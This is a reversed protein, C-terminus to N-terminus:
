EIDEPCFALVDNIFTSVIFDIVDKVSIMGIPHNEADVIPVHRFGGQSMLTLAFAISTEPKECVPNPTMFDRLPRDKNQEFDQVVKLICDRESFIGSVAGRDDTVIVCGVRRERLVRLAANVTVDESLSIARQPDLISLSQALFNGDLVGFRKSLAARISENVPVGRRAAGAAAVSSEKEEHRDSSM